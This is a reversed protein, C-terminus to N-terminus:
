ENKGGVYEAWGIEAPTVPKRVEDGNQGWAADEEYWRQAANLVARWVQLAGRPIIGVGNLTVLGAGEYGTLRSM